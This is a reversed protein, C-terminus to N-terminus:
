TEPTVSEHTIIERLWSEVAQKVINYKNTFLLDRTELLGKARKLGHMVTSHDTNYLAAIDPYPFKPWYSRIFMSCLNRLETHERDRKKTRTAGVPMKLVREIVPIMQEPNRGEVSANLMQVRVKLGTQHFITEECVRMLNHAVNMQEFTIM